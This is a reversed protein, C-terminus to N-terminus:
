QLTIKKMFTLYFGPIFDPSKKIMKEEFEYDASIFRHSCTLLPTTFTLIAIELPKKTTILKYIIFTSVINAIDIKLEYHFLSM